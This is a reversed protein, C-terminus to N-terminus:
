GSKYIKKKKKKKDSNEANKLFQPLGFEFNIILRNEIM